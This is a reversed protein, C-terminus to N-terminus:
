LPVKLVGEKIKTGMKKPGERGAKPWVKDALELGTSGRMRRATSMCAKKHLNNPKKRERNLFVSTKCRWLPTKSIFRNVPLDM